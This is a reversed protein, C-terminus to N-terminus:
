HTPEDYPTSLANLEAALTTWCEFHSQFTDFDDYAEALEMLHQIEDMRGVLDNRLDQRENEWHSLILQETTTLTNLQISM